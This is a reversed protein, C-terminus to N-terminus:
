FNATHHTDTLLTALTGHTPPCFWVKCLIASYYIFNSLFLLIATYYIFNSLLWCFNSLLLTFNLRFIYRQLKIFSSLTSIASM